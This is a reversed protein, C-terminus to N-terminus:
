EVQSEPFQLVFFFLAVKEFKSSSVMNCWWRFTCLSDWASRKLELFFFLKRHTRLFFCISSWQRSFDSWFPGALVPTHQVCGLLTQGKPRGPPTDCLNGFFNTYTPLFFLGPLVAIWHHKKMEGLINLHEVRNSIIYGGRFQCVM